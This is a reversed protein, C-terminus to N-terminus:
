EFNLNQVALPKAMQWHFSFMLYSDPHIIKRKLLKKWQCIAWGNATWFRIKSYFLPEQKKNVLNVWTGAKLCNLSKPLIRVKKYLLAKLLVSKSSVWNQIKWFIVSKTTKRLPVHIKGLLHTTIRPNQM